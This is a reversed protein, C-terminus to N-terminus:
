GGCRGGGRTAVWKFRPPTHDPELKITVRAPTSGVRLVQLEEKHAGKHRAKEWVIVETDDDPGEGGGGRGGEQQQQQAGGGSGSSGGGAAAAAARKDRLYQITITVRRWLSTFPYAAGSQRAAAAVAANMAAQGGAQMAQLAVAQLQNAPADPDVRGSIHLSWQPPDGGGSGGGGSGDQNKHRHVVYIRVTKRLPPEAAATTVAQVELRRRKLLLDVKREHEGLAAVLPSEPV